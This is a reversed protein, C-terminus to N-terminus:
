ADGLFARVKEESTVTVGDLTQLTQLRFAARLRYYPKACCPNGTLLVHHLWQLDALFETQRVHEVLNGRADVHHLQSCDGLPGLSRVYNHAVNLVSLRPLQQLGGLETLHNGAVNLEVLPLGGDLGEIRRLRNRSLDLVQLFRLGALGTVREIRNGRLVLCELFPHRAALGTRAEGMDAIRNGAANAVTLMSGVAKHGTSWAHTATCHPPCFDLCSTLANDSVDLEVLGPLAALPALDEVANGAVNVYMVHPFQALASLDTLGQRPCKCALFAHAGTLPHRGLLSLSDRVMADTLPQQAAAPSSSPEAM